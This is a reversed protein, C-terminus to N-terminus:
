RRVKKFIISEIVQNSWKRWRTRREDSLNASYEVIRCRDFLIGAARCTEHRGHRSVRCPVFFMRVPTIIPMEQLWDACFDHSQLKRVEAEWNRGTKCQAFCILKGTRKDSFARWVVLDLGGDKKAALNDRSRHGVGEGM